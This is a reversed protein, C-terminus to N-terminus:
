QQLEDREAYLEELVPNLAPDPDREQEAELHEIQENLRKLESM